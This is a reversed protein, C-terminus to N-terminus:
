STRRAFPTRTCEREAAPEAEGVPRVVHVHGLGAVRAQGVVVDGLERGVCFPLCDDVEWEQCVPSVEAQNVSRCPVVVSM